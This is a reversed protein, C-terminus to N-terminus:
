NLHRTDVRTKISKSKITQKVEKPLQKLYSILKMENSSQNLLSHLEPLRYGTHLEEIYM